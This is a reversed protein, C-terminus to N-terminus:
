TSAKKGVGVADRISEMLTCSASVRSLIVPCSIHWAVNRGLGLFAGPASPILKSIHLRSKGIQSPTTKRM